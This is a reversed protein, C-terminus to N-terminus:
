QNANSMVAASKRRGYGTMEVYGRGEVASKGWKGKVATAGEWYRVSVQLEQDSLLPSVQLDIHHKPVRVRWQAPYVAYSWPSTWHQLVALEVDHVSLPTSNGASDVLVGSSTADAGSGTRLQYYMLEAGNSLQLAFWDWGQQGAELASTSWERDLWATGDVSYREGDIDVSGAATMRTYSYYYSANGEGRGKRSLGREGQLVLPKVSDLLVSIAVTSDRAELRLPFFSDQTSRAQWDYLWVRFPASEVGALEAAGRAFQEFSFFRNKGIDSLAFHAMYMQNTSWNSLSQATDPSVASRFFTLQFGFRRGNQATLHGTFYWWETKFEPHAGHDEPFVFDRPTYAHAYGANDGGSMASVVDISGAEPNDQPSHETVVVVVVSLVVALALSLLVVTAKM